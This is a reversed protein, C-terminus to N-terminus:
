QILFKICEKYLEQANELSDYGHGANRIIHLKANKYSVAYKVGYIYPVALDERAQVVLVNKTFGNTNAYMNRGLLGDAFYQSLEFGNSYYNGNDLKRWTAFKKEALEPM